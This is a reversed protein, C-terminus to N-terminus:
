EKVAAYVQAIQQPYNSGIRTLQERVELVINQEM